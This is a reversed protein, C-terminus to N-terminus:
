AGALTLGPKERVLRAIDGGMQGTGLVLVRIPSRRCADDNGM